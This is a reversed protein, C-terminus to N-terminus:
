NRLQMAIVLHLESACDIGQAQLQASVILYHTQCNRRESNLLARALATKQRFNGGKAVSFEDLRGRKFATTRVRPLNTRELSVRDIRKRGGECRTDLQGIAIKLQSAEAKRKVVGM